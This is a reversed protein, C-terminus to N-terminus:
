FSNFLVIGKKGVDLSLSVYVNLAALCLRRHSLSVYVNLGAFCLGSSRGLTNFECYPNVIRFSHFSDTVM